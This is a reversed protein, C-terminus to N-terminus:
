SGCEGTQTSRHTGPVPCLLSDIDTPLMFDIGDIDANGVIIQFAEDPDATVGGKGDYWGAFFYHIGYSLQVPVQVELLFAGSSVLVDFAGDPGVDVWFEEGSRNAVLGIRDFLQGEMGSVVGRINYPIPPPVIEFTAEAIKQMGWFVQVWNRGLAGAHDIGLYGTERTGGASLPLTRHYREFDFGDEFFVAVEVPLSGLGDTDNFSYDLNMYLIATKGPESSVTSVPPGDLTYSLYAEDIRGNIAAIDTKVPTDGIFSLDYPESGDYWRAIVMDIVDAREESVYNAFSEKMYCLAMGSDGCRDDSVPYLRKLYLRRFAHRFQIEDMNRYLGRFIREGLGYLCDAYDHSNPDPELDELEIINRALTCPPRSTPGQLLNKSLPELFTAAGEVLWPSLGRWYYHSAEHTIVELLSEPTLSEEDMAITVHTAYNIGAPKDSNEEFAYIVQSQPFPFGMFEEISRVSHELSDMTAEVGPRTRIITLETEGALPLAITREEVTVQEPNLLKALLKSDYIEYLVAVIKAEQDSIGDGITPHSMIRDLDTPNNAALYWLSELAPYNSGEVVWQEELLKATYGEHALRILGRVANFENRNIGDEVWALDEIREAMEPIDDRLEEIADQVQEVREQDDQEIASAM